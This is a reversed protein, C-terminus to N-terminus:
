IGEVEEELQVIGELKPVLMANKVTSQVLMEGVESSCEETAMFLTELLANSSIGTVVHANGISNTLMTALKFPTGGVLDCVFLVDEKEGLIKEYSATLVEENDEELFDIATIGHNRGYIMEINHMIGTAFHGHGTLIIQVRM